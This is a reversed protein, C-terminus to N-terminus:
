TAFGRFLDALSMQFGPIVEEGDLRGDVAISQESHDPRVVLASRAAPGIIWVLRAGSEFYESAKAKVRAISDSPSLVEVCLDPAGQFFQDIRTGPAEIRDMSISSVDPSRLNGNTMSCGLSSGCVEGLKRAQVFPVLAGILRAAPMEHRLGTPGVILEGAVVEYKGAVDPLSMLQAETWTKKETGPEM